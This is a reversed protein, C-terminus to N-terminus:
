AVGCVDSLGTALHCPAGARSSSYICNCLCSSCQKATAILHPLHPFCLFPSLLQREPLPWFILPGWGGDGKDSHVWSSFHKWLIDYLKNSLIDPMINDMVKRHRIDILWSQVLGNEPLYTVEKRMLERKLPLCHYAHWKHLLHLLM